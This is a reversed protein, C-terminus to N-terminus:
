QDQSEGGLTANTRRDRKQCCKASLTYSLTAHDTGKRGAWQKIPRVEGHEAENSKGKHPTLDQQKTFPV